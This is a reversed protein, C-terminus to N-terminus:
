KGDNSKEGRFTWLVPPPVGIREETKGLGGDDRGDYHEGSQAQWFVQSISERGGM